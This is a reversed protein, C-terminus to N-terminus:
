QMMETVWEGFHTTLSICPPEHDALLETLHDTTLQRM